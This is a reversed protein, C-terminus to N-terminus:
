ENKKKKKMKTNRNITRHNNKRHKKNKFNSENNICVRTIVCGFRVNIINSQLRHRCIVLTCQIPASQRKWLRQRKDTTQETYTREM